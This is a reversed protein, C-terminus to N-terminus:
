DGATKWKGQQIMPLVSVNGREQVRGRVVFWQLGERTEALLNGQRELGAFYQKIFGISAQRREDEVNPLCIFVASAASIRADTMREPHPRVQGLM